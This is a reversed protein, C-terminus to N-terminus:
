REQLSVRNRIEELPLPSNIVINKVSNLDFNRRKKLAEIVFDPIKRLRFIDMIKQSSDKQIPHKQKSGCKKYIKKRL